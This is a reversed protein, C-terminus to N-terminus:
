ARYALKIVKIFSKDLNKVQYELGPTNGYLSILQSKTRMALHHNEHLKPLLREGLLKEHGEVSGDAEAESIKFLPQSNVCANSDQQIPSRKVVPM